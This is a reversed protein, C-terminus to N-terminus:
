GATKTIAKLKPIIEDIITNKIKKAKNAFGFADIYLIGSNNGIVVAGNFGLEELASFYSKVNKELSFTVQAFSINFLIIFIYKKLNM